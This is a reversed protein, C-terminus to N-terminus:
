LAAMIIKAVELGGDPAVPRKSWAGTLINDFEGAFSGDQVSDWDIFTVEGNLKHWDFLYPQEPWGARRVCLVPIRNIVAETQTGYGTKTLVLDCSSLLDVYELGFCSQAFFDDRQLYLAQDPFIWYVNDRKPWQELSFNIGIGGLSVLIFKAQDNCGVHKRLSDVLRMGSLAITAVPLTNALNPMPMSPTAQLFLEAQAYANLIEAYIKAAGDFHGCYTDFIDAWNLSCLAISPVGLLGAADLSLYPVDAFVLDAKLSNLDLAAQQRRQSYDAHFDRYWRMTLEADVRLADFMVVGNDQQYPILEFPHKIRERLVHEPALSRITLRINKIDLANLVVATQALHGFGHASIDVVLHKM